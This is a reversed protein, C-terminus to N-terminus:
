SMVFNFDKTSRPEDLGWYHIDFMNGDGYNISVAVADADGVSDVLVDGVTVVSRIRNSFEVSVVLVASTDM